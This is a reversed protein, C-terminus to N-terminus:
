WNQSAFGDFPVVDDEELVLDDSGDPGRLPLVDMAVRFAREFEVVQLSVWTLLDVEKTLRAVIDNAVVKSVPEIVEKEIVGVGFVVEIM